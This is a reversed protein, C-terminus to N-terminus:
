KPSDTSLVTFIANIYTSFIVEFIDENRAFIEINCNQFLYRLHYFVSIEINSQFM